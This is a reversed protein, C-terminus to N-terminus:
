AKLIVQIVHLKSYVVEYVMFVIFFISVFNNKMGGILKPFTQVITKSYNFYDSKSPQGDTVAELHTSWFLISESQREYVKNEEKLKKLNFTLPPLEAPYGVRNMSRRKSTSPNVIEKM